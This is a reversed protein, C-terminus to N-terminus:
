EAVEYGSLDLFAWIPLVAGDRRVLETHNELAVVRRERLVRQKPDRAPQGSDEHRICSVEAAAQGEGGSEWGTLREAVANM